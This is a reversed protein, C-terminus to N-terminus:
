LELSSIKREAHPLFFYIVAGSLLLPVGAFYLVYLYRPLSLFLAAAATISLLLMDTFFIVMANINQKIAAAPTEWNLKPHLIDLTLALLNCFFALSLGIGLAAATDLFPLSFVLATGGTGALVGIVAILMAHALKAQLYQAVSIPLSKIFGINKADRSVATAAVNTASGLFAGCVGSLLVGAGDWLMDLLTTPIDASKSFYMVVIVFPIIVIMLPGNLFYAPERNMMRIERLLLSIGIPRQVLKGGFVLKREAENLKKVKREDFGALTRVYVGSFFFILAAAGGICLLVFPIFSRLMAAVSAAALSEAFLRLPLLFALRSSISPQYRMIMDQLAATDRPQRMLYNTGITLVIGILGGTLMVAQKNKFVATSRMLLIHVFYCFAIVPLPFFLSGIVSVAYFYVPPQEYYGYVSAEVTFFAVSFLMAPICHAFYKAGFFVSPQIPMALLTNEIGGISYTSLTLLFNTLLLFVLVIGAELAFLLQLMGLPRLTRYLNVTMSGFLVIFCGGVYILLLVLLVTKVISVDDTRCGAAAGNPVAGAASGETYRATKKKKEKIFESWRSIGFVVSVYMRFLRFFVALKQMRPSMYQKM